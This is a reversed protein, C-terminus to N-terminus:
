LGSHHSIRIIDIETYMSTREQLYQNYTEMWQPYSLSLYVLGTLYSVCPNVVM